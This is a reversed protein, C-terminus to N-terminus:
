PCGPNAEPYQYPANIRDPNARWVRQVGPGACQTIWAGSTFTGGTITLQYEGFTGNLAGCSLAGPKVATYLWTATTGASSVRWYKVLAGDPTCQRITAYRTASGGKIQLSQEGDVTISTSGVNDVWWAVQEQVGGVWYVTTKKTSLRIYGTITRTSGPALSTGFGWRYPHDKGVRGTFDVGVRWRGPIDPYGRSDASQGENYIFGPNPGQTNMTVGSDNRVTIDVRLLGGSPLFLPSFTVNLITLGGGMAPTPTPSLTATATRTPTPTPTATPPGPTSTATRTPTSTRTPTPGVNLASFAQVLGYGYITDYGAAGLDKASLTLISRVDDPGSGPFHALILAAIGSVHPAAMSTGQFLWYGFDTPDKTLPNFTQQVIGDPFGDNNQDVNLDGGPAVLTLGPGYNSYPARTEDFRIAGVSIVSPYAAPYILSGTNDNGAAAVVVAGKDHAYNVADELVTSPSPAGLSLNIVKAGNDAAWVIGNAVWDDQGVGNSNLVKVPMIKASYAIGTAGVANNTTQAITGAVHTGHSHDDNAHSTNNVFNWGAVFTTSALDPAKVFPGYNEYAVGTDVVAVTIGTGSTIDWASPMQIKSFNWQYVFLPDNPTLDAYRYYNPQASAVLPNAQLTRAVQPVAEPDRLTVAM